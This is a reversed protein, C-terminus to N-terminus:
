NLLISVARCVCLARSLDRAQRTTEYGDVARSKCQECLNEDEWDQRDHVKRRKELEEETLHVREPLEPKRHVEATLWRFFEDWEGM